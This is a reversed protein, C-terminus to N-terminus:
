DHVHSDADWQALKPTLWVLLRDQCAHSTYKEPPFLHGAHESKPKSSKKGPTFARMETKQVPTGSIAKHRKGASACPGSADASVDPAHDHLMELERRLRKGLNSKHSAAQSAAEKEKRKRSRYSNGLATGECDMKQRKSGGQLVTDADSSTGM